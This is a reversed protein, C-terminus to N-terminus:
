DAEELFFPQTLIRCGVEFDSRDGPDARRYRAIRVRMEQASRAGNAEGFAQWALSCPLANAYAFVGGGVIVNRPAHLKFLFLEGPQLARFNAASPAWFNVEALDPRHRLTDFWDGDTVAVVLNVGM